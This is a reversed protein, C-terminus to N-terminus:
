NRNELLGIILEKCDIGIIQSLYYVVQINPIIVGNFYRSLTTQTKKCNFRTKLDMLIGSQTLGKSKLLENFDM